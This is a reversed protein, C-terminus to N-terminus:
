RILIFKQSFPSGFVFFFHGMPSGPGGKRGQMGGPSGRMADNMGRCSVIGM